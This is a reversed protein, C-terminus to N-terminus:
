VNGLSPQNRHGALVSDIDTSGTTSCKLGGIFKRSSPKRPGATSPYPDNLKFTRLSHIM